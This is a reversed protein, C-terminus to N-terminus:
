LEASGRNDSHTGEMNNSEVESADSTEENAKIDEIWMTMNKRIEEPDIYYEDEDIKVDNPNSLHVHIKPILKTLFSKDVNGMADTIMLEIQSNWFSRESSFDSKTNDAEIMDAITLAVDYASTCFQFDDSNNPRPYKCRSLQRKLIHTMLGLAQHTKMDDHHFPYKIFLQRARELARSPRHVYEVPTMIWSELYTGFTASTMQKGVPTFGSSIIYIGVSCLVVSGVLIRYTNDTYKRFLYLGFLIEATVFFTSTRYYIFPDEVDAFKLQKLRDIALGLYHRQREIMKQQNQLMSVYRNKTTKEIDTLPKYLKMYELAILPHGANSLADIGDLFDLLEEFDGPLQDMPNANPQTTYTFDFANKMFESEQDIQVRKDWQGLLSYLRGIKRPDKRIEITKVYVGTYFLGAIAIRYTYLVGLGLLTLGAKVKLSPMTLISSQPIGQNSISFAGFFFVIPESATLVTPQDM